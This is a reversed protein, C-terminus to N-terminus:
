QCERAVCGVVGEHHERQLQLLLCLSHAAVARGCWIHVDERDAASYGAAARCCLREDVNPRGFATGTKRKQRVGRLCERAM